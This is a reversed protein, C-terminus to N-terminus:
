KSKNWEYVIDKFYRLLLDTLIEQNFDPFEFDVMQYRINLNTKVKSKFDEFNEECFVLLDVNSTHPTLNKEVLDLSKNFNNLDEDSSRVLYLICNM